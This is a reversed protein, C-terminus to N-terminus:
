EDCFRAEDPKLPVHEWSDAQVNHVVILANADQFPPGPGKIVEDCRVCRETGAVSLYQRLEHAVKM